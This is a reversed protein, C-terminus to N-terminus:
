PVMCRSGYKKRTAMVAERRRNVPPIISRETKIANGYEDFYVMQISWEVTYDRDKM